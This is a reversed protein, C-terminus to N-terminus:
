EFREHAHEDGNDAVEGFAGTARANEAMDEAAAFFHPPHHLFGRGPQGRLLPDHDVAHQVQLVDGDSLDRQGQALEDGDVRLCGNGFDELESLFGAEGTQGDAALIVADGADHAEADDGALGFEVFGFGGSVVHGWREDEIGLGAQFAGEALHLAHALMQGDHAARVLAFEAGDAQLVDESYDESVNRSLIERPLSTAEFAANFVSSAVRSVATLSRGGTGAASRVPAPLKHNHAPVRKALASNSKATCGITARISSGCSPPVGVTHFVQM